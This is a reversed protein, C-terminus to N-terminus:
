AAVLPIVQPVSRALMYIALAIVLWAFYARLQMPSVRKILVIGLGLGVAGFAVFQVTVFWNLPSQAIHGVLGSASNMAIIPLSTGVAIPMELGVLIVLAPVILFGGGVGLFGTLVGVGLGALAVVLWNTVHPAAHLARRPPRLMLGAVVLMLIAFVILLVPGPLLSTFRSGVLAGLIGLGGFILASRLRVRGHRFHLWSGLLANMGVIALSTGVAMEPSQGVLYVLVPVTLISGGGGLLGLSLGIAIAMASSLWWMPDM